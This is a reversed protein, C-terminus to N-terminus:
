KTHNTQTIAKHSQNTNSGCSMMMQSEDTPMMQVDEVHYGMGVFEQIGADVNM